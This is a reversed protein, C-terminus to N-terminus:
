DQDLVEVLEHLVDRDGPRDDQAAFATVAAAFRVADSQRIIIPVESSQGVELSLTHPGVDNGLNDDREVAITQSSPLGAARATDVFVALDGVTLDDLDVSIRM